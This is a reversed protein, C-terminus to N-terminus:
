FCFLSVALIRHHPLYSFSCSDTSEGWRNRKAATRRLATYSTQTSQDWAQLRLKGCLVRLGFVGRGGLLYM